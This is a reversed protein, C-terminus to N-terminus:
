AGAPAGASRERGVGAATPAPAPAMLDAVLTTVVQQEGAVDFFHGGHVQHLEFRGSTEVQWGAMRDPSGEVDDIGAFALVPLDLPPQPRALYTDVLTLDARLTPILANLLAPESLVEPPTGGMDRLYGVLDDQWQMASEQWSPAAASALYLARPLPLGAERLRHTLAWAVKAGMSLGYFAFPRGTCPGIVPVLADLLSAMTVFPKERFRDARGPLQVAVAEVGAPLLQSWTRYM